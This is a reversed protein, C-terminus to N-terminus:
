VDADHDNGVKLTLRYERGKVRLDVANEAIPEM